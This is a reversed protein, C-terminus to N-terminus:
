SNLSRFYSTGTDLVYTALLEWNEALIESVEKKSM